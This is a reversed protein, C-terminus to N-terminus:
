EAVAPSQPATHLNAEFSVDIGNENSSSESPVQKRAVAENVRQRKSTPEANTSQETAHAFVVSDQPSVPSSRYCGGM